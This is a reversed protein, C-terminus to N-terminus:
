GRLALRGAGLGLTLRYSHRRYVLRVVLGATTVIVGLMSDGLELMLRFLPRPSIRNPAFRM